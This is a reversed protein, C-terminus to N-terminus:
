SGCPEIVATHKHCKRNLPQESGDNVTPRWRGVGGRRGRKRKKKCGGSTTELIELTDDPECLTPVDIDAFDPDPDPDCLTPAEDDDVVPESRAQPFALLCM